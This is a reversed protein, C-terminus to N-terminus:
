VPDCVCSATCEEAPPCGQDTDCEEGFEAVGNGCVTPALNVQDMRFYLNQADETVFAAAIDEAPDGASSDNLVDTAIPSLGAWDSVDGDLMITVAWAATATALTFAVAVAVGSRRRLGRGAVFLLLTASMLLLPVTLTPASTGRGFLIPAGGNQGNTTLLVDNLIGVRTAHFGLRVLDPNGLAARPVYFEVVDSNGSGVGVGVELGVPWGSMDFPAPTTFDMGSICNRVQVSYVQAALKQRHVTAVVLREIGPVTGAFNLDHVEVGCGTVQDNDTDILVRYFYVDPPDSALPPATWGLLVAVGSVLGIKSGLM